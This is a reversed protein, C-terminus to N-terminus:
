LGGEVLHRAIILLGVIAAGLGVMVLPLWQSERIEHFWRIPVTLIIAVTAVAVLPLWGLHASLTTAPAEWPTGHHRAIDRPDFDDGGTLFDFRGM